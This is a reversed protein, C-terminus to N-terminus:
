PEHMEQFNELFKAGFSLKVVVKEKRSAHHCDSERKLQFFLFSVKVEPTILLLINKRLDVRNMAPCFSAQLLEASCEAFRSKRDPGKGTM